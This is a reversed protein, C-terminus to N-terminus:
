FLVLKVTLLGGHVYVIRLVPRREVVLVRIRTEAEIIVIVIIDVVVVVVVTITVFPIFVADADGSNPSTTLINLLLRISLFSFLSKITPKDDHLMKRPRIRHSQSRPTM